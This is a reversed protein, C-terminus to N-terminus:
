RSRRPTSGGRRRAGSTASGAWAVAGGPRAARGARVVRGAAVDPRFGAPDGGGALHDELDVPRQGPHGQLAAARDPERPGLVDAGRDLLADDPDGEGSGASLDGQHHVNGPDHGRAVLDVEGQRGPGPEPLVPQVAGQRPPQAGPQFVLVSLWNVALLAVVFIWFGRVRHPPRPKHDDPLGRGDPAPAVRWGKKDRPMPSPPSGQRADLEPGPRADSDNV